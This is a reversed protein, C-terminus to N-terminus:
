PRILSWTLSVNFDAEIVPTLFNENKKNYVKHPHFEECSLVPSHDINLKFGFEVCFHLSLDCMFYIVRQRMRFKYRPRKQECQGGDQDPDLARHCQGPQCVTPAPARQEAAPRTGRDSGPRASACAAQGVALLLTASFGFTNYYM